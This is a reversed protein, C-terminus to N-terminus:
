FGGACVPTRLDVDREKRRLRRVVGEGPRRRFPKLWPVDGRTEEEEVWERILAECGRVVEGVSRCEKYAAALASLLCGGAQRILTRREVPLRVVRRVAVAAGGWLSAFAGQVRSWFGSVEQRTTNTHDVPGDMLRFWRQSLYAVVSARERFWDEVADVRFEKLHERRLQFEVRVAKDPVEGDWREEILTAWKEEDQRDVVERVKDYVRVALGRGLMFGTWRSRGDSLVGDFYPAGKTARSVFERRVFAEVVPQIDEGVLDTCVDVRSLKNSVIRGGMAEVMARVTAWLVALGGCRMLVNSGARMWVNPTEGSAVSRNAIDLRVGAADLCWRYGPGGGGRRGQAAVRAVVFGGLLFECWEGAEGHQQHQEKMADLAAVMQGWDAWPREQGPEMASWDVLLGVEVTDEGGGKSTAPPTNGSEGGAGRGGGGDVFAAYEAGVGAVGASPPNGGAERPGGGAIAPHTGALIGSLGVHSGDGDATAHMRPLEEHRRGTEIV